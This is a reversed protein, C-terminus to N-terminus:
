EFDESRCRNLLMIWQKNWRVRDLLWNMFSKIDEKMEGYRCVEVTETGAVERLFSIPREIAYLVHSLLMCM